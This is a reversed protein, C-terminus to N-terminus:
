GFYSIPLTYKLGLHPQESMNGMALSNLMHENDKMTFCDFLNTCNAPRRLLLSM